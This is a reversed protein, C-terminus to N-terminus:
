ASVAQVLNHANLAAVGGLVQAVVYALLDAQPFAASNQLHLMVSVAPNFHGGSVAGGFLIAALLGTAIVFPQVNGFNGSKLIISLFLFTGFFEVAYKLM